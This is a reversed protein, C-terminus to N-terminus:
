EERYTPLTFWFLSGQGVKSEVGVCGGLREVIRRVISLGLGHGKARPTHSEVCAFPKFLRAKQEPAIGPGQDRVWFRVLSAAADDAEGGAGLEIRLPQSGYNLANSLYNYWVEEVWPAYGLAVPWADGAPLTIEAHREDILDTLRGRAEAVIGAMDLPTLVVEEVQRVSALLLLEGIVRSMKRGSRSITRLHRRVEEGSLEALNERLAEAFGVMHGLSGDLEHAVMHAFADLEENRAELQTTYRRLAEEIRKREAVERQLERNSHILARESSRALDLARGLWRMTFRLVFATAGLMLSQIVARVFSARLNDTYIVGRLAAYFLGWLALVSLLAVVLMANESLLLASLALVLFYATVAGADVGRDTYASLTTATLLLLVLLVSAMQVLGRRVLLLTGALFVSGIGTLLAGERDGLILFLVGLIIASVLLASLIANLWLTVQAKTQGGSVLRGLHEKLWDLM